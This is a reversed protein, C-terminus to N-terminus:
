VALRRHWDPDLPVAPRGPAPWSAQALENLVAPGAWPPSSPSRADPGTPLTEVPAPRGAADEEEFYALMAAMTVEGRRVESAQHEVWLAQAQGATLDPQYEAVVALFDRRAFKTRPDRYAVTEAQFAEARRQYRDNGGLMSLDLLEPMFVLRGRERTAVGVDHMRQMLRRAAREGLGTATQVEASTVTVLKGDYGPTGVLGAAVLLTLAWGPTGTGPTGSRPDAWCDLSPDLVQLVGPPLGTTEPGPLEHPTDVPELGPTPTPTGTDTRTYTFGQKGLVQVVQVSVVVVEQDPSSRDPQVVSWRTLRPKEHQPGETGEQICVLLGVQDGLTWPAQNLLSGHHLGSAAALARKGAPSHGLVAAAIRADRALSPDAAVIRALNLLRGPPIQPAASAPAPLTTM